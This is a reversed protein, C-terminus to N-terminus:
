IKMKSLIEKKKKNLEKLIMMKHLRSRHHRHSRDSTCSHSLYM